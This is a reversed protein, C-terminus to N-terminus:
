LDPNISFKVGYPSIGPHDLYNFRRIVDIRLVKFINGIGAGAEIYPTNGLAYTGNSGNVAAPFKYLNNSYLPNNENRLGGYLIKLSLFERWKLHEVLPIKNLFFGSFSHTLNIGVYHDSVFELYDMLNYANPDYAYSQNAPSIDLLPFPVKGTLLSGLITVDTYGLQSLYFRKFINASINTYSYSGNLLGEFGHNLQVNIIPYKSYITRRYQTGQLLQEHPAYRLGLDVESTTLNNIITGNADNLQYVLTGAAQQNWNKFSLNYSFHNEFDKVYGISFIRNYLWYDSSGTHFSALARQANNISFTQGPVGTDYLYSIKFYDNPFRYSPTKNLSIYTNLNYKLQEDKTGYAAYGELYITKNFKPTTRGGLWFRSGEVSDFSYISGIPGFEFPGFDGYGGILASAIWAATKFSQMNELRNIHAYIQTQGSTLTDTRHHVWFGTDSQNAPITQLSKGQYFTPSLPTNLKYNSYFVTREGFVGMGRNKLIGFDAKVDSKNLYYRGGPYQEFDLKVKLSRMFNINLQKNVDLECSEVAYHGDLTVLIKGEFLLDGKARPTFSLEVLKGKATQITDTIFFKYYNPAHDAIPSLFQNTIIFINNDYIDINNGYLRNVYIDLGVTDIFKVINIGKQATLIKITKEPKKRYYNQFLKESFFVPISTQSVGNVKLTTDLMFKYQSFGRSNILKPSLHFFSLGIREYQDYQLYDTSEMRNQEKHDIVQQILEVAPNGKNRYRKSKGSVVSVEKLQTQSSHMRVQLVNAQGPKIIKVLSPYGVYSFKVNNFSGPASLAFNGVKDSNTGYDSGSFSISIFPLPQGTVADTIRGSVSTVVQNQLPSKRITDTVTKSSDKKLSDKQQAIGCLPVPIFFFFIYKKLRLNKQYQLIAQWPSTKKITFNRLVQLM